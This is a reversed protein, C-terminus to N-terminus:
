VNAGAHSLITSVYGQTENPWNGPPSNKIRSYGANYSALARMTNGGNMDLMKKLYRAGGELSQAPDYADTVGVEAATKDMLQCLGKAGVRSTARPDWGSEQTVVARFLNRDVGHRDAAADAMAQLEAKGTSGGGGIPGHLGPIGELNPVMPLNSSCSSLTSQFEAAVRNQATAERPTLADIKSQIQAIRRNIGEPGLFTMAAAGGM